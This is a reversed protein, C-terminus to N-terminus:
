MFNYSNGGVQSLIGVFNTLRSGHWLLRHNHLKKFPKFRKAEGKREIRFAQYLCYFFCTSTITSLLVAENLYHNSSLLSVNEIKLSYNSHTAAHTNKVYKHLVNYEDSDEAIPEIKTNLKSYHKDIVSDNDGSPGSDDNLLSYAVEIEKLSEVM